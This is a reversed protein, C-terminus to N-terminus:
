RTARNVEYTWSPLLCSSRKQLDGHNCNGVQVALTVGQRRCVVELNSEKLDMEFSSDPGVVTLMLLQPFKHYNIAQGIERLVHKTVYMYDPQGDNARLVRLNPFIGISEAEWFDCNLVELKSFSHEPSPIVHYTCRQTM